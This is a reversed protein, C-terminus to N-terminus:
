LSNRSAVREYVYVRATGWSVDIDRPKSDAMEFGTLSGEPFTRLTAVRRLQPAAVLRAALLRLFADDFLLSAVYVQLM